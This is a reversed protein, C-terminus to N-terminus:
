GVIKNVIDWNLKVWYPVLFITSAIVVALFFLIILGIVWITFKEKIIGGDKTIKLSLVGLWYPVFVIGIVEGVKLLGFLLYKM